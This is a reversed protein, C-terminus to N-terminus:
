RKNSKYRKMLHHLKSRDNHIGELIESKGLLIIKSDKKIKCGVQVPEQNLLQQVGLLSGPPVSQLVKSKKFLEIEGDILAIGANPIQKEYVLECENHFSLVEHNEKLVSVDHPNLKSIKKKM